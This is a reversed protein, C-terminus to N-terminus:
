VHKSTVLVTLVFVTAKLENKQKRIIMTKNM